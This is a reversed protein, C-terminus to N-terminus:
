CGKKIKTDAAIRDVLIFVHLSICIYYLIQSLKFNQHEWKMPLMKLGPM